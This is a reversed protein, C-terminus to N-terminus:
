EEKQSDVEVDERDGFYPYVIPNLGLSVLENNVESLQKRLKGNDKNCEDNTFPVYAIGYVNGIRMEEKLTKSIDKININNIVSVIEIHDKKGLEKLMIKSRKGDDSFVIVPIKIVKIKPRDQEEDVDPNGEQYLDDKSVGISELKDMVTEESTKKESKKM